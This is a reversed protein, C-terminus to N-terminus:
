STPTQPSHKSENKKNGKRAKNLTELDQQILIPTPASHGKYQPHSFLWEEHPRDENLRYHINCLVRGSANPHLWMRAVYDGLPTIKTEGRWRQVDIKQKAWYAKSWPCVGTISAFYEAWNVEKKRVAV